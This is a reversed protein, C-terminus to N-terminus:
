IVHFQDDHDSLSSGKIQNMCKYRVLVLRKGLFLKEILENLNKFRNSTVLEKYIVFSCM